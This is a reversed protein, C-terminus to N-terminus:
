PDEDRILEEIDMEVTEAEGSRIEEVRERMEELFGAAEAPSGHFSIDDYIADLVELLSYGMNAGAIVPSPPGKKERPGFVVLSENLRVPLDALDYMPTCSVSYMVKGEPTVAPTWEGEPGGIGHFGYYIDLGTKGKYRNLKGGRYVELYELRGARGESRIPEEAQAHFEDIRGCWSYGAIFAELLPISRVARFIHLLTTGEAITCYRRLKAIVTDDEVPRRIDNGDDDTGYFFLGEPEFQVHESM